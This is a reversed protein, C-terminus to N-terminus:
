SFAASARRAIELHEAMSRRISGRSNVAIHTAGLRDWGRIEDRARDINGDGVDVWAQIGISDPDRGADSAADRIIRLSESAHRGPPGMAMWGDGLKGVRRFARPDTEAGIWVPIPRQVPLPAIGVGQLSHSRDTHFVTEKTWLERMLVIQEDLLRGRDQFNAGMGQFEPRNWGIGVGLRFHGRTLMDVEAAQKAVLAAQRQPVVLVGAVLELSSFGALFGFLVLPEHFRDSLDYPGTWGPHAAPDVGLVHDPVLLHDYGLSEIGAVYERVEDPDGDISGQPFVVGRRPRVGPGTEAHKVAPDM